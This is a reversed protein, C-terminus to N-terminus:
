LAATCRLDVIVILGLLEICGVDLHRAGCGALDQGEERTCCHHLKAAGHLRLLQGPTGLSLSLALRVDVHIRSVTVIFLGPADATM